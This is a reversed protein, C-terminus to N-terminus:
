VQERVRQELGVTFVRAYVSCWRAGLAKETIGARNRQSAFISWSCRPPPPVESPSSSAATVDYYVFRDVPLAFLYCGPSDMTPTTIGGEEVWGGAHAKTTTTLWCPAGRASALAFILASGRFGSTITLRQWRYFFLFVARKIEM